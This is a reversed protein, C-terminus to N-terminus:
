VESRPSIRYRDILDNYHRNYFDVSAALNEVIFFPAIEELTSRTTM